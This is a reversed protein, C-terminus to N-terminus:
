LFAPEPKEKRLRKLLYGDRRSYDIFQPLADSSEYPGELIIDDGSYVTECKNAHTPEM